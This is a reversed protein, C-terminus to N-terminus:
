DSQRMRAIREAALTDMEEMQKSMRKEIQDRMMTVKQRDAKTQMDANLKTDMDGKPKLSGSDDDDTKYNSVQFEERQAARYKELQLRTPDVEKIVPKRNRLRYIQVCGGAVAALVFIVFFVYSPLFQGGAAPVLGNIVMAFGYAGVFVSLLVMTATKWHAATVGCFVAIAVLAVWYFGFADSQVINNDAAIIVNRLFYMTFAGTSCGAIFFIFYTASEMVWCLFVANVMTALVSLILALWCRVFTENSDLTIWLFLYLSLFFTAILAVLIAASHTLSEGFFLLVVSPILICLLAIVTLGTGGESAVSEGVHALANYLVQGTYQAVCTPEITM